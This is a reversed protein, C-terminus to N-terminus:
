CIMQQAVQGAILSLRDHIMVFAAGEEAEVTDGRVREGGFMESGVRAGGVGRAVGKKDFGGGARAGLPIGLMLRLTM